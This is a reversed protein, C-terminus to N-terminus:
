VAIQYGEEIIKLLAKVVAPDFQSGAEKQMIELVDEIPLRKRYPRDSSLADYVDAVALIRADRHIAEGALGDPYGKGDFREHHQAIIPILERYAHIPEIIKAGLEPHLKILQFEEDNLGNQKDLITLPIGVKGIDHLFAARQLNELSEPSLQLASGIQLAVEAVRQSHGATWPSKADVTRALAQLTGWNMEKLKQILSSNSFAVAIQDALQRALTIDEATFQKSNCIGLWLVASLNKKDWIPLILLTRLQMSITIPLYHPMTDNFHIVLYNPNQALVKHDHATFEVSETLITQRHLAFSCLAHDQSSPDPDIINVGYFHCAVFETVRTIAAKIIDERNLSSLVARDIDAKASLTKFKHDLADSMENFAVALEEFEDQSSVSVKQNFDRQAIRQAGQKLAAIPVLNKRINAISLWLVVMLTLVLFLPFLIKFEDLPAFVDSKAKFLIVTWHPLKFNPKMFLHTYSALYQKGDATFKFHGSTSAQSYAKFEDAAKWLNPKSIYLPRHASDLVCFETDLPLNDVQDIAWLYNLNIEGIFFGKAVKEADVLRLMSISPKSQSTNLEALLIKGTSMHKIDDSALHLSRITSPNLLPQSQDPTVFLTLSNFRKLMRNRLSADLGQTEVPSHNNTLFSVFELEKAIFNLRDDLTKAQSRAAHRLSKITQNQLHQTVQFYVLVALCGIPV